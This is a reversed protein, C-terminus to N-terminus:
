KLVGPPYHFFESPCAAPTELTYVRNSPVSSQIGGESTSFTKEEIDGGDHITPIELPTFQQRMM